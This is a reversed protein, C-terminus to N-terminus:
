NSQQQDTLSKSEEADAKDVELQAKLAKEVYQQVPIDQDIAKKKIEKLTENSIQAQLHAM